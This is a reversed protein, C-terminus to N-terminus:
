FDEKTTFAVIRLKIEKGETGISLGLPASRLELREKGRLIPVRTEGQKWNPVTVSDLRTQIGFSEMETKLFEIAKLNNTSASLRDPTDEEVNNIRVYCADDKSLQSIRDLTGTTQSCGGVLFAFLIILQKM